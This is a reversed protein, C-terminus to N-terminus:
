NHEYQFLFYLLCEEFKWLSLLDVWVKLMRKLVGNLRVIKMYSDEHVKNMMWLGKIFNQKNKKLENM